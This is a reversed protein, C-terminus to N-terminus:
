FGARLSVGGGGLDGTPLVRVASTDEAGESTATIVFYLATAVAAVGGGVFSAISATRLGDDGESSAAFVGGLVLGTVTLGAGGVVLVPDVGDDSSARRPPADDRRPALPAPVEDAPGGDPPSSRLVVDKAEGADARVEVSSVRGDVLTGEVRHTGPEVYAPLVLPATGLARGGVSVRSGAPAEIRLEAVYGLVRSLEEAIRQRKTEDGDDRYRALAFALHEAADRHKGLLGEVVGLNAAIQPAQHLAFAAAYRARATELDGRDHAAAGEAFLEDASQAAARGPTLLAALGLGGALGLVHAISPARTPM